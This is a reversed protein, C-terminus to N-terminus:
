MMEKLITKKIIIPQEGNLIRCLERPQVNILIYEVGDEDCVKMMNRPAHDLSVSVYSSGRLTNMKKPTTFYDDLDKPENFIHLNKVHIAYGNKDQLYKKIEEQSLGAYKSLFLNNLRRSAYRDYKKFYRIEEIEFNCNAVIKGNLAEGVGMQELYKNGKKTNPIVEYKTKFEDGYLYEVESLIPKEKYSCFLMKM